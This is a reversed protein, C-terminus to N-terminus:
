QNKLQKIWSRHFKKQNGYYDYGDYYNKYDSKNIDNLVVGLVIANVKELQVKMMKMNMFKLTHPKVVIITGDLQSAIIACDIVSGLPPTDIIIMDFRKKVMELFTTFRDSEILEVPNIPKVGCSIFSFGEINTTTIVEDLSATGGLLNSMGKFTSNGLHKMVMPKRLDMDVFLVKMGSKAISISLNVATTTKGDGPNWSTVAVTRIKRDLEYYQINTRLVNYAEEAPSSLRNEIDFNKMSVEM